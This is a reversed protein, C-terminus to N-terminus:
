ARRQRAAGPQRIQGRRSNIDGIIGGVFDQPSVIEVDMIPELLKIGGKECGERM